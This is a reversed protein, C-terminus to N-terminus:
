MNRWSQQVVYSRLRETMQGYYSSDSTFYYASWHAIRKVSEWFITGFDRCYQLKTPLAHKLHSLAHLNEVMTTLCSELNPTFQQDITGIIQSLHIFSHYLMSVSDQTWSSFLPIVSMAPFPTSLFAV